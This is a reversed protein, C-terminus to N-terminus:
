GGEGRGWKSFDVIKFCRLFKLCFKTFRVASEISLIDAFTVKYSQGQSRSFTVTVSFAFGFAFRYLCIDSSICSFRDFRFFNDNAVYERLVNCSFYNELSAIYPKISYEIDGASRVFKM